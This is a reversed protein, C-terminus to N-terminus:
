KGMLYMGVLLFAMGCVHILKIPTQYALLGIIAAWIFTPAYLPYLFSLAGGKRFAAVFLVMILTYCALGGLIRVNM